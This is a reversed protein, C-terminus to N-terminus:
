TKPRILVRYIRRRSAKAVEVEFGDVILKEGAAPIRQTSALIWQNVSDTPKGPLEVDLRSELLRLEAGGEMLIRGDDVERISEKVEDESHYIEGVLEELLDELTLVGELAGLDDVVIVLHRENSRLEELLADARHHVTVFLPPDGLEDLTSEQKGEALAELIRRIHVVKNIADTEGAHLPIRSHGAELIDTLAEGVTRRGDMSVIRQRPTMVDEVDIHDLAFAREIIEKEDEEITGEQLGHRALRILENETVTPDPPGSLSHLRSTFRQLLYSVPFVIWSFAVLLPSVLLAIPAAHRAAFSKPTVEGFILIALTLFGVALGPGIRGFRETAVVTALASAAINALNNGVLIAILTQNPREKLRHLSRSGRRKELLLAEARAMSTATLATEAGSFFASLLLLAALGLFESM